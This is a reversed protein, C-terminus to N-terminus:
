IYIVYFMIYKLYCNSAAGVFGYSAGLRPDPRAIRYEQTHLSKM